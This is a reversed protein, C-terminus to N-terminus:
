RNRSLLVLRHVTEQGFVSKRWNVCAYFEFWLEMRAVPDSNSGSQIVKDDWLVRVEGDSRTITVTASGSVPQTNLRNRLPKGSIASSRSGLHALWADTHGGSAIVEGRSNLLKISLYQMAHRGPGWWSLDCDLTFDQVAEVERWLKVSSRKGNGGRVVTRPEIATVTLAGEENDLDWGEANILSWNWPAEGSGAIVIPPTISIKRVSSLPVKLLGLLTLAEFADIDPVGRLDTGDRMTCVVVTEVPDVRLRRVQALDIKAETNDSRLRFETPQAKGLLRSGDQLDIALYLLPEAPVGEAPASSTAAALVLWPLCVSLILRLKRM